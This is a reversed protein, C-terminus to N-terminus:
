AYISCLRTTSVPAQTERGRLRQLAALRKDKARAAGVVIARDDPIMGRYNDCCVEISDELNQKTKSSIIASSM